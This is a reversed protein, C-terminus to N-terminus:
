SQGQTYYKYLSNFMDILDNKPTWQFTQKAKEINACLYPADGKRRPVYEYKVMIRTATECIQILSKVSLGIGSGANYVGNFENKWKSSCMKKVISVHLQALDDVSIYDRVCTGDTTEFDYGNILLAENHYTKKILQPVINEKAFYQQTTQEIECSCGVVNFYRLAVYNMGLTQSLLTIKQESLYKTYSYPSMDKVVLEVSEDVPVLTNPYVAASSSYVLKDVGHSIMVNLLCETAFVNQSYYLSPNDYSKEIGLEGACHIVCDISPNVTFIHSLNETDRIDFQYTILNNDDIELPTAKDISIVHCGTSLLKRIIHSGIYGSGGTVLITIM